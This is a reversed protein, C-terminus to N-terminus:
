LQGIDSGRPPLYVLIPYAGLVFVADMQRFRCRGFRDVIPIGAGEVYQAMASCYVFIRDYRTNPLRRRFPETRTRASYFYPLTLPKADFPASASEAVAGAESAGSCGDVSHCINALTM